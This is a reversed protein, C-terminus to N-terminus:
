PAQVAAQGVMWMDLRSAGQGDDLRAERCPPTGFLRAPSGLSCATL